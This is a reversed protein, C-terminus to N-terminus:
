KSLRLIELPTHKVSFDDFSSKSKKVYKNVKHLSKVKGNIVFHIDFLDRLQKGTFRFGFEILENYIFIGTRLRYKLKMRKM